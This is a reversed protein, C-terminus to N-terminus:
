DVALKKTAWFDINELHILYLGSKLKEDIVFHDSNTVEYKIILRGSLDTIKIQTKQQVEGWHITFKDHAPNPYIAFNKSSIIESVGVPSIPRSWMGDYATSIIIDGDKILIDNIYVFSPLGITDATWNRGTDASILVRGYNTGLIINGGLKVSCSGVGAPNSILSWADGHDTTSWVGNTGYAILKNGFVEFGRVSNNNITNNIHQWYFGLDNTRYVGSSPAVGAFLTDGMRTMAQVYVAAVGSDSNVWNTGQDISKYIGYNSSIWVYPSDIYIYGVYISLPISIGNNRQTWNNGGDISRFFGQDGVGIYIETDTACLAGIGSHGIPAFMTQWSLGNDHSVHLGDGGTALFLSNGYTAIQTCGSEIGISKSNWNIGNNTSKYIGSGATALYLVNNYEYISSIYFARLSDNRQVWTLGADSSFYVGNNMTTAFIDNGVRLLSNIYSQSVGTGSPTWIGGNNTSIYVTGGWSGAFITNGYSLFSHVQNTLGTNAPNWTLGNDSSRFVLSDTGVFLDTGHKIIAYPSSHQNLNVNMTMWTHGSDASQFLGFGYVGCWLMSDIEALFIVQSSPLNTTISSFSEGNDLSESIGNDGYALVKNGYFMVGRLLVHNFGRSYTWTDANDISYYVRYNAAAIVHTANRIVCRSDGGYPSAIKHWQASAAFTVLLFFLLITRKM